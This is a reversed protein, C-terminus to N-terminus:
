YKKPVQTAKKKSEQNIFFNFLVANIWFLIKELCYLDNSDIKDM